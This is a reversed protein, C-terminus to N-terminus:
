HRTLYVVGVITGLLVATLLVVTIVTQWWPEDKPPKGNPKLMDLMLISPPIM